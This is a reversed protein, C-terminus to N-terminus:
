DVFAPHEREGRRKGEKEEGKGGYNRGRGGGMGETTACFFTSLPNIFSFGAEKKKKKEKKEGM